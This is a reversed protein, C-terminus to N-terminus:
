HLKDPLIQGFLFYRVPNQKKNGFAL